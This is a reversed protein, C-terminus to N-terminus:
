ASDLRAEEADNSRASLEAIRGSAHAFVAALKHLLERPEGERCTHRMLEVALASVDDADVIKGPRCGPPLSAIEDPDFRAMFVRVVDVVEAVSACEDLREPWTLGGTSDITPPFPLSPM